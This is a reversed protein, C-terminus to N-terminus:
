KIEYGIDVFFPHDLEVNQIWAYEDTLYKKNRSNDIILSVEKLVNENELPIEIARFMKNLEEAPNGMLSEYQISYNIKFKGISERIRLIYSKWLELNSKYHKKIIDANFFPSDKERKMERALLSLSVNCGNRYIHIVRANPFIDHWIPLLLSNRPDKWGWLFNEKLSKLLEQGFHCPILEAELQKRTKKRIWAFHSSLDTTGPLFDLCRWNAGMMDLIEKNIEQFFVSERNGTQKEGMFVGCRELIEVLLTTGSRHMGVIIIPSSKLLKEFYLAKSMTMM